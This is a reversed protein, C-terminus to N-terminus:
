IWKVVKVGSKRISKLILKERKKYKKALDPKMYKSHFEVFIITFVKIQNNHILSELVDYESGEIDLKLILFSYKKPLIVDSLLESFNVSNVIIGHDVSYNKQNSNHEPNVTGGLSYKGGFNEHIGYFNLKKNEIGVAQERIEVCYSKNNEYKEKLVHFCHPNPEFLIYDFNKIQYFKQFFEFSQGINSGCDIFLGKQKVKSVKNNLYKSNYYLKVKIIWWTLLGLYNSYRFIKKIITTLRNM